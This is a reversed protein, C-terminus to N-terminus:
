HGSTLLSHRAILWLMRHIVGIYYIRRTEEFTALSTGRDVISGRDRVEDM